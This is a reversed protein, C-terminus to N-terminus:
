VSHRMNSALALLSRVFFGDEIKEKVKNGIKGSLLSADLFISIISGYFNKNKKRKSNSQFCDFVFLMCHRKVGDTFFDKGKKVM